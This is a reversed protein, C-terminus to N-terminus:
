VRYLVGYRERLYRILHKPSLDEGTVRRTLELMDYRRGQLHINERLWGLLWRFDGRAFDEELTPRLALARYWLQAAMMNGLCYSPFYGFAGDSWHVDQLVGERDNPPTLGLLEQAAAKWAAPLDTVALQGSFLRQELEFRLIIHLNYTVEDADVRILTPAVTNIALYLEDSSVKATQAPFVERLRPEFCRWFGRSRAVQNEWLRSQSEHVAMGAHIGLATGLHEKALGQEYLGHGTEHISSFLSDLPEHEKFRTTMRVDAGTGTCFPHLSVDIRGCQYDFGLRETVERLFTRQGEVPLGQLADGRPKVPSAGIARVLPVLDRKLEAFLKAIVGASMGPDHKDIMYDYERGEWGLYRAERKAFELNQALVPAYSAFDNHAKARAWAHYGRSSQAAKERVFDPPLKTARDYDRRAVKVVARQDPTLAGDAELAALWAGLRPDSAAAHTAGALAAQQAARQDAAGPPLNVQEDWGMLEAVTGLLHVRKVWDTLEAYVKSNTM